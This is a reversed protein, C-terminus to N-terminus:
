ADGTTATQRSTRNSTCLRSERGALISLSDRDEGGCNQHAASGAGREPRDLTNQATETTAQTAAAHKAGEATTSGTSGTNARKCSSCSMSTFTPQFNSRDARNARHLLEGDEPEM